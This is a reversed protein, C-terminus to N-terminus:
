CLLCRFIISYTELGHFFATIRFLPIDKYPYTIHLFLKDKMQLQQQTDETAPVRNAINEYTCTYTIFVEKDSHFVVKYVCYM